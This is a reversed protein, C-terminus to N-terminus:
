RAMGVKVLVAAISFVFVPLMMCVLCLLLSPLAFLSFLFLSPFVPIVSQIDNIVIIIPLNPNLLTYIAFHTRLLKQVHRTSIVRSPPSLYFGWTLTM